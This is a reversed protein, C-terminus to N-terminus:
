EAQHSQLSPCPVSKTFIEEFKAPIFRGESDYVATDSGHKSRHGNKIFVRFFPDPLVGPATFWSFFFHIVSREPRLRRDTGARERKRHIAPLLLLTIFSVM